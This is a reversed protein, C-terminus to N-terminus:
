VDSMQPFRAQLNALERKIIAQSIPGTFLRLHDGPVDIVKLKAVRDWGVALDGAFETIETARFFIITGDFGHDRGDGAIAGWIGVWITEETVLRQQEIRFSRIHRMLARFARQPFDRLKMALLRRHWAPSQAQFYGTVPTDFVMLSAVTHGLRKLQNAIEIA